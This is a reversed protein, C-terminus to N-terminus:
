LMEVGESAVLYDFDLRIRHGRWHALTMRIEVDDFVRLEKFYEGGIPLTVLRLHRALEDIIEPAFDRLFLERCRGQWAVHRTYYVNGVLNTEEFSVVHRYIYNPGTGTARDHSDIM